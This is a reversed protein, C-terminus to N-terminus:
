FSCFGVWIMSLREYNKDMLLIQVVQAELEENGKANV